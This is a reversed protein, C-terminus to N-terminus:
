LQKYVAVQLFAVERFRENELRWRFREIGLWVVLCEILMSRVNVRLVTTLVKLDEDAAGARRTRPIALL